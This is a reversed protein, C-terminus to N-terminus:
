KKRRFPLFRTDKPIPIETTYEPITGSNVSFFGFPMRHSHRYVRDDVRLIQTSLYDIEYTGVKRKNLYQWLEASDDNDSVAVLFEDNTKCLATFWLSDAVIYKKIASATLEYIGRTTANLNESESIFYVKDGVQQLNFIYDTTLSDYLVFDTYGGTSKHFYWKRSISDENAYYASIAYYDSGIKFIHRPYTLGSGVPYSEVTAPYTVKVVEALASVLIESESLYCPTLTYSPTGVVYGNPTNNSSRSFQVQFPVYASAYGDGSSHFLTDEGVVKYDYWSGSHRYQNYFAENWQYSGDATPTFGYYVDDTNLYNLTQSKATALTLSTDLLILRCRINAPVSLETWNQAFLSFAILSLIFIRKM